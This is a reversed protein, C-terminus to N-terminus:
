WGPSSDLGAARQVWAQRLTAMAWDIRAPPNLFHAYALAMQGAAQDSPVQGTATGLGPCAIVRIPRAANLNHRRVALLMAWMALYVQDTGVISMPVRMTPTHAIFPHEPHDTEVIMSTGVPQEGLYEVLIGQQVRDHLGSGFYDIIAGDVGGDMLGFSNAASVMCDFVPLREFRGKVIEVNPLSQFHERFTDCLDQKPDVLILKLPSM